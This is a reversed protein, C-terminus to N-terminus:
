FVKPGYLTPIRLIKNLVGLCTRVDFVPVHQSDLQVDGSCKRAAFRGCNFSRRVKDVAATLWAVWGRKSAGVVAFNDVQLSLCRLINFHASILVQKDM